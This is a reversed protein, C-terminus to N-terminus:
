SNLVQAARDATWGFFARSELGAKLFGEQMAGAVEGQDHPTFALLSPGAGSLVVAAAGAELGSQVAQYAGPILPLRSPQHLYDRYVKELLDIDGSRLAEILLATNGLNSVAHKFSVQGPLARRAAITSLSFEPRIVM